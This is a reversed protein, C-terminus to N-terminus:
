SKRWFINDYFGGKIIKVASNVILYYGMRFLYVIVQKNFM